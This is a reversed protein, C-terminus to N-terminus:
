FDVVHTTHAPNKQTESCTEHWEFLPQTMQTETWGLDWVDLVGPSMPKNSKLFRCLYTRGDHRCVIFNEGDTVALSSTKGANNDCYKRLQQTLETRTLGRFHLAGYEDAYRLVPMIVSDEVVHLRDPKDFMIGLDGPATTDDLPIGAFVQRKVYRLEEEFGPPSTLRSHQEGSLVVPVYLGFRYPRAIDRVGFTEVAYLTGNSGATELAPEGIMERYVPLKLLGNPDTTVMPYWLTFDNGQVTRHKTTVGFPFCTKVVPVVKGSSEDLVMIPCMVVCDAASMAADFHAIASENDHERYWVGLLYNVYFLQPHESLVDDLLRKAESVIEATPFIHTASTANDQQGDPACHEALFDSIRRLADSEPESLNVAKVNGRNRAFVTTPTDELYLPEDHKRAFAMAALLQESWPVRYDRIHYKVVTGYDNRWFTTPSMWDKLSQQSERVCVVLGAALAM